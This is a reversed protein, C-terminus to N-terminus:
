FSSSSAQVYRELALMAEETRCDGARSTLLELTKPDRRLRELRMAVFRQLDYLRTQRMRMILSQDEPTMQELLSNTQSIMEGNMGTM